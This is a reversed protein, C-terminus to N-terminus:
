NSADEAGELIQLGIRTKESASFEAAPPMREAWAVRGASTLVPWLARDTVAVRRGLFMQKLKRPQRRGYPRYADGPRWNRIVLPSTLREADLVCNDYRTDRQRMPWDILKLCLSRGLEPISVTTLGARPLRVEYEYSLNAASNRDSSTGRSAVRVFVLRDFEREVRVAGPLEIQRGSRGHLALELVRGIDKRTLQGETGSIDSHIHRILRQAVTIWPNNEESLGTTPFQMPCILEKASISIGSGSNTTLKQFRERIFADWFSEESRALDSLTCLREVIAPSFDKELRPLLQHRLRARFQRLNQNTADERWDQGCDALFARLDQRRVDILPRIVNKMKPQIAGLGRLGSGRIIRALVTEAQDDATHATAIKTAVGEQAVCAFFEYRLRRGADELNWGHHKAEKGVDKRECIFELRSTKALEQVFAEDADSDAGRLQHNLHLVCLSVGLEARLDELIRLLAVSDAGGSVAIGVRDGANLMGYQRITALVRRHLPSIM